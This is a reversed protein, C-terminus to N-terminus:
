HRVRPRLCPLWIFVPYESYRSHYVRYVGNSWNGDVTYYGVVIGGNTVLRDVVGMHSSHAYGFAALAGARPTSHVWGRRQAWSFVYGVGASRGAIPGVGAHVLVWQTWSVCWAAHYTHHTIAQMNMVEPGWNPGWTEKFGYRISHAARTIRRVCTARRARARAAAVRLARTRQGAIGVWTIPRVIQGKLVAIFYRGAVKGNLLHRPYGLRFKMRRVAIKTRVDYRATLRGRYTRYHRYHSPRHGALMWQLGKVQKGAMYFHLRPQQLGPAAQGTPCIAAAAVLAALALLRRVAAQEAV